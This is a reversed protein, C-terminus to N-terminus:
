NSATTTSLNPEKGWTERSNSTNDPCCVAYQNRNPSTAPELKPNTHEAGMEPNAITTCHDTASSEGIWHCRALQAHPPEDNRAADPGAGAVMVMRDGAVVKSHNMEM